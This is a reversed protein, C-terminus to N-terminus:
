QKGGTSVGRYYDEVLKQYKEIIKETSGEIVADRLRPSIAGWERQTENIKQSLDPNPQGAQSVQSNGAPSQGQNQQPNGPQQQGPQAGPQQAQQQGPQQQRNSAMQQQAQKIMDDLDVVIRKQIEQTIKGPDLDLSLRQKSRAMRDGVRNLQKTEKEAKPDGGLLEDAVEQNEVQEKGAEEPLKDKPDPEPKLGEKGQTAAKILDDLLKRLEGQRNGLTVVAPQDRDPKPTADTDKTERNIALQHARLLRLEAETPLKSGGGGTGGGGPRQAFKSQDMEQKLADIMDQLRDVVRQEQKQTPKGTKSKTLDEQVEEMMGAIEKASWDYVIGGLKRLEEALARTRKALDAQKPPLQNLRVAQERPLEGQPNRAKDVEATPKNVNELQETRIKEFQAKIAEAAKVNQQDQIKQREEVAKRLAQELASLAEIQHPNYATALKQDRIDVIAYGMKGAARVLDAACAAGEPVEEAAKGVSRTNRETQEQGSVMVPLEVKPRQGKPDRPNAQAMLREIEEPKLAKTMADGGQLALNDLNHGSQRRVLDQIQKILDDFLKALQELKRREADKLTNLVVELGLEAQKQAAQAQAQKNQQAQDGATRQQQSVQQSQAQAAADKMAQSTQPDSKQMQDAMKQMQQVAKDVQDALEKQEKAIKDLKDRNEPKMQDRTKGLEEKGIDKTQKSLDKQKDLLAQVKSIMSALNGVQDMKAMAAELKRAAEAQSGQAGELSQNRQAKAQETQQPNQPNAKSQAAQNLKNAADTMDKEAAQDLQNRADRAIDNLTQDKVRNEKLERQVDELNGSLTKTQNAIGSQRNIQGELASKDGKSFEPKAKSDEALNRTENMNSVHSDRVIKTKHAVARIVETAGIMAQEQSIINIRLKSSAQPPHALTKNVGPESTPVDMRYNDQVVFYYELVDGPRLDGLAQKLEWDWNLRFRQREGTGDIRQWNKLDLEWHKKQNPNPAPAPQGAAAALNPSADGSAIKDVILKLSSIGFDDEALVQVPLYGEATREVNRRPSEIMVTPLQDPKVVIEYEELGANTFGDKDTAWIRFRFSDRASWAGVATKPDPRSWEVVPGKPAAPKTTPGTSDASENAVVSLMLPKDSLEKNFGVTLTVRSGSTMFAPASALNMTLPPMESYAPPAVVAEVRTVALRPVVEIVRQETSDDGASMWVKLSQGRADLAAAYRGDEGRIMYEKQVPGNDYQYYILAKRSPSDGKALRLSVDVRQGVPVRTPLSGADIQVTKPWKADGFPMFLRKFGINRFTPLLLALALLFAIAGAAGGLSYWVPKTIIARSLDVRGAIEAAQAVTRQKMYDSGPVDKEQVFNVTSRLRDDFEPFVTELHGAVDSLSLRSLVPRIVFRFAAYGLVSLAAALLILRPLPLLNVNLLYHLLFDLLIAALVLGVASALVVGVGFAISLFKVKRRVSNLADILFTPPM